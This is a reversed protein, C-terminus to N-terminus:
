NWGQSCKSIYFSLQQWGKQFTDSYFPNMLMFHGKYKIINTQSSVIANYKELRIKAVIFLHSFMFVDCLLGVQMM